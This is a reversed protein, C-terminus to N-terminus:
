AAETLLEAIRKVKDTGLSSWVRALLLAAEDQDSRLGLPLTSREHYRARADLLPEPRIGLADAVELTSQPALPARTGREVEALYSVSLKSTLSQALKDLTWGKSRRAERILTGYTTPITM